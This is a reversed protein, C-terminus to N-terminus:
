LPASTREFMERTLAPYDLQDRRGLQYDGVAASSEFIFKCRDFRRTQFSAFAEEPSDSRTLEEALVLSDEIAMGAGQGLHPTSAHVADGILVIRGKSWPGDVFLTELPKYVVANDDKIQEGLEQIRPATGDLRKRMADARGEVAIHPNGPEPSTVFMYIQDQSLPVLGVGIRGTYAQLCDVDAPRPLNCRWVSQGTFQPKPANPFLHDRTASYLGDAGVVLDFRERTGDTLKVDVGAGDDKLETATVGLRIGTGLELARDALVRQLAPRGIGLQAPYNEGALRPSPIVAVRTGDPAYMEVRDFPFASALYAELVGLEAVARVVNAQQIIGVGYVSWDPDREVITVDFGRQRLAIASTLGGIGGGIILIKARGM